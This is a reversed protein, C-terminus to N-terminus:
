AARWLFLRHGHTGPDTSVEDGCPAIVGENRLATFTAGVVGGRVGHIARADNASFPRGSAALKRIAAEVKARDAPHAATAIAQGRSKAKLGVCICQQATLHFGCTPCRDLQTTAWSDLTM